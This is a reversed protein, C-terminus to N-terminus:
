RRRRRQQPTTTPRACHESCRVAFRGPLSLTVNTRAANDMCAREYEYRHHPDVDVESVVGDAAVRLHLVPSGHRRWADPTTCARMGALTPELASRISSAEADSVAFHDAGSAVYCSLPCADAPPATPTEPAAQTQTQTPAPTPAPPPESASFTDNGEVSASASTGSSGGTKVEGNVQCAPAAGVLAISAFLVIPARMSWEYRMARPEEM